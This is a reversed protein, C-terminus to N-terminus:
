AVLSWARSDVLFKKMSLQNFGHFQSWYVARRVSRCEGAPIKVGCLVVAMALVIVMHHAGFDIRQM